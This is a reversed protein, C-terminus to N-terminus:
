FGQFGRLTDREQSVSPLGYLWSLIRALSFDRNQEAERLARLAAQRDHGYLAKELDTRENLPKETRPETACGLLLGLLIILLRLISKM